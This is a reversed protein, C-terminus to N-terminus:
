GRGQRRQHQHRREHQMARAIAMVVVLLLVRVVVRWCQARGEEGSRRGRRRRWMRLVVVM